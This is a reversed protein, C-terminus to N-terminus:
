AFKKVVRTSCIRDHLARKEKDFAAMWYPFAGLLAGLLQFLMVLFFGGAMAGPNDETTAAIGGMLAFGLFAGFLTCAMWIFYNLLAWSLWRCISRGLTLGTGDPRVVVAGIAMKGLTARKKVLMWSHYGGILILMGLVGLAYSIGMAATWGGFPNEPDPQATGGSITLVIFPIMCIMSPLYVVLGDILYALVRWWFGVPKLGAIDEPESPKRIVGGTERLKQLFADKHDPDIWSEGYPMLESKPLVKSSHACVATEVPDPSIEGEAVTEEASPRYIEGAVQRFPRWEGMGEHWVLDDALITGKRGLDVLQARDAPGYKQDNIAYYWDM